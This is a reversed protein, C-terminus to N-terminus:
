PIGAAKAGQWNELFREDTHDGGETAKIFAFQTGAASVSAWDIRGQWKSVDIGHIPLRHAAAVGPHPRTDGKSAYRNQQACAALCLTASAILGIAKLRATLARRLPSAQFLASVFNM